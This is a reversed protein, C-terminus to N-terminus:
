FHTLSEKSNCLAFPSLMSLSLTYAVDCTITPDPVLTNGLNHVRLVDILPELQSGTMEVSNEQNQNQVPAPAATAAIFLPFLIGLFKM